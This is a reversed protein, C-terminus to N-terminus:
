TSHYFLLPHKYSLLRLSLQQHDNLGHYLKYSVGGLLLNLHIFVYVYRLKPLSQRMCTLLMEWGLLTPFTNPKLYMFHKLFYVKLYDKLEEPIFLKEVFNSM